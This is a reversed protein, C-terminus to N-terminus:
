IPLLGPHRKFKIMKVYHEGVINNHDIFQNYLLCHMWVWQNYLLCNMWVWRKYLLCDMWVWQNYLLGDMGM